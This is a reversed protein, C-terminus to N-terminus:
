KAKKGGHGKFMTTPAFEGLKHGVMEETVFVEIFKRGNHVQFTVGIFEPLITSSRYWTKIPSNSGGSKAKQVKSILKPNCFSGKSLSRAM